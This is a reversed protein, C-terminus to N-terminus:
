TGILKSLTERFDEEKVGGGCVAANSASWLKDMGTRGWVAVGQSWSQLITM